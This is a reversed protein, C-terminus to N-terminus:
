NLKEIAQALQGVLSSKNAVNIEARTLGVGDTQRALARLQQVTMAALQGRATEEPEASTQSGFPPEATVAPQIVPHSPAPRAPPEPEPVPAEPRAPPVAGAARPLMQGIEDVPRPIVHQSVLQGVRAAGAAGADVAAKVAGVDGTVIITVLGAGVHQKCVLGVQAAKLMADAAEVSAVLGRTEIM